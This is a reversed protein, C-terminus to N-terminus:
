EFAIEAVRPIMTVAVILLSVKHKLLASVVDEPAAEVTYRTFHTEDVNLLLIQNLANRTFVM